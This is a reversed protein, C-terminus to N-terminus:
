TFTDVINAMWVWRFTGNNLELKIQLPKVNMIRVIGSLKETGFPDWTHMSIRCGNQFSHFIDEMMAKCQAVTLEPKGRYEMDRCEVELRELLGKMWFEQSAAIGFDGINITM